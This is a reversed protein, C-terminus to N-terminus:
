FLRVKFDNQYADSISAAISRTIRLKRKWTYNLLEQFQGNLANMKGGFDLWNISEIKGRENKYSEINDPFGIKYLNDRDFSFGIINIDQYDSIKLIPDNEKKDHLLKINDSIYLAYYFIENVGSLGETKYKGYNSDIKEIGHIRGHIHIINSKLFSLLKEKCESKEKCEPSKFFKSNPLLIRKLLFHELSEDYNFTAITLKENKELFEDMNECGSLLDTILYSYWDDKSPELSKKECSLLVYAIMVKAAEEHKPHSFVFSDISTPRHVILDNYFDRIEPIENIKKKGQDNVSRRPNCNFCNIIERKMESLPKIFYYSPIWVEGTKIEEEILKILGAGTPFGYPVSAGAGLIFLTKNEFMDMDGFLKLLIIM